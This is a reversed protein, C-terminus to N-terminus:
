SRSQFDRRPLDGDGGLRRAHRNARLPHPARRGPIGIRELQRLVVGRYRDREKAWDVNPHQHTVPVLVYLTSMGPPALTPDTVCANQVYFSPDGSLVHRQEIEELNRVYNEAMYITHHDLHDFRGELGLYMM